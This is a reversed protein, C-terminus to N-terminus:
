TYNPENLICTAGLSNAFSLYPPHYLSLRPNQKYNKTFSIGQTSSSYPFFHIKGQVQDTITGM